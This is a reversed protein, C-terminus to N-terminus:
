DLQQSNIEDDEQPETVDNLPDDFDEELPWDFDDINDEDDDDPPLEETREAKESKVGPKKEYIEFTEGDTIDDEDENHHEKIHKKMRYQNSNSFDCLSCKFRDNSKKRSMSKSIRICCEEHELTDELQFSEYSCNSCLFVPFITPYYSVSKRDISWRKGVFHDSCIRSQETPMWIQDDSNLVRNVAKIWLNRQKLDHCPFTFSCSDAESSMFTKSCTSVCCEILYDVPVPEPALSPEAKKNTKEELPGFEREIWAKAFAHCVKAFLSYSVRRKGVKDSIYLKHIDRVSKGDPFVLRPVKKHLTPRFSMIFDKIEQKIQAHETRPFKGKTSKKVTLTEPDFKNLTFLVM